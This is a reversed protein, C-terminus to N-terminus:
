LSMEKQLWQNLALCDAGLYIFADIGAAKHAEIQAKPYGALILAADPQQAKIAQALTPVIEPYTNDTSCIVVANAGSALAAEAAAAPSEFGSPNLLEFGGVEFFGRTFDARAKHQRLSGMNALFIQPPHGHKQAYAEAKRRLQVFPADPHFPRLGDVVVKEKGDFLADSLQELTAGAEAAAIAQDMQETPTAATLVALAPEPNREPQRSLMIPEQEPQPLPKEGVNPYMNTGVMVAKRKALDKQRAVATAGIQEQIMGARLAAVVGGAAEIEQFYTWGRQALEDTLYEVLHAGGAPDVLRSLNVEEQLIIQVNRAIRRSFNNPQRQSADFPAIQISNAGGLAAAFAETTARLMNVHPDLKSKSSFSTQAHINLKEAAEDGGFAAVMQAWVTRAARLKAIEMFFDSGISFVATIRRAIEDIALGRQQLQRIHHVATALLLGTEQVANAGCDRYIAPMVALTHLKPAHTNAWQTLVATQNYLADLPQSGEAALWAIPDHLLSGRLNALNEGQAAALQALVPLGHQGLLFLPTQALDVDAFITRLDDATFHAEPVWFVATQGHALDHRLQENLQHPQGEALRQAILWPKGSEIGRRYPPQNPVATQRPATANLLPDIPIGEYSHHTLKEIPKGKLSAVTAAIWEEATPPTFEAFLLRNVQSDDSM